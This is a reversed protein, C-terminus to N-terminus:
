YTNLIRIAQTVDSETLGVLKDIELDLDDLVVFKTINHEAIWDTIEEARATGYSTKGIISDRISELVRYVESMAVRWNSSIVIKAGTASIIRQLRELKVPDIFNPNQSQEQSSNLVGDIDLFIIKDSSSAIRNAVLGFNM